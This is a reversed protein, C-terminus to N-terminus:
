PGLHRLMAHRGGPIERIEIGDGLGAVGAAIALAAVFRHEAPPVERPDDLPIGYVGSIQDPDAAKCFDEFLSRYGLNLEEYPGVTLRCAIRVPATDVLELTM